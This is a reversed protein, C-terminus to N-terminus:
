RRKITLNVCGEFANDAIKTNSSVSVEQLKKCGTISRNDNAFALDEIIEVSDPILIKEISSCGTFAQVGIIRVGEPITIKEIYRCHRDALAFCGIEVIGDPLVIESHNSDPNFMNLKFRSLVGSKVVAEYLENKIILNKVHQVPLKTRSEKNAM